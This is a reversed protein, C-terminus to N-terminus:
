GLGVRHSGRPNGQAHGVDTRSYGGTEQQVKRLPARRLKAEWKPSYHKRRSARRCGCLFRYDPIETLRQRLRSVRVRDLAPLGMRRGRKSASRLKRVLNTQHGGFARRLGFKRPRCSFLPKYNGQEHDRRYVLAECVSADGVPNWYKVPSGISIRWNATESRPLVYVANKVPVAGIRKPPAAVDKVRLYPPSTRFRISYCAAMYKRTGTQV